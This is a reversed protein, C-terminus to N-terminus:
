ILWYEGTIWLNHGGTAESKFTCLITDTAVDASLRGVYDALTSACFGMADTTQKLDSAIPLSFRFSTDTTITTPDCNVLLTFKCKNGTRSYTATNVAALVPTGDLNSVATFTPAWTGEEYEPLTMGGKQESAYMLRGVVLMDEGSDVHVYDNVGSEWEATSTSRLDIVTRIGTQKVFMAKLKRWWSRIISPSATNYPWPLTYLFQTAPGTWPALFTMLDAHDRGVWADAYNVDSEHPWIMIKDYVRDIGTLGLLDFANDSCATIIDRLPDLAPYVTVPTGNAPPWSASATVTVTQSRYAGSDTHAGATNFEVYTGPSGTVEIRAPKLTTASDGLHTGGVFRVYADADTESFRVSNVSGMTASNFGINGAGPDGSLGTSWLYDMGVVARISVGGSACIVLYVDADPNEEAVRKAYAVPLRINGNYPNEFLTGITGDWGGNLVFLNPPVEWTVTGLRRFNSQSYALIMIRKRNSLNYGSGDPKVYLRKRADASTITPLNISAASLAAASAAAIADGRADMMDTYEAGTLTSWYVTPPSPPVANLLEALTYSADNGVQILGLDQAKRVTEARSVYSWRAIVRYKTARLGETNRWLETGAPISLGDLAIFKPGPLVTDDGETDFGTLVFELEAALAAEGDPLPVDGTIVSTTLAM